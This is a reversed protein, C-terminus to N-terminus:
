PHGPAHGGRDDGADHGAPDDAGNKGGNIAASEEATLNVLLKNTLDTKMTNEQIKVLPISSFCSLSRSIGSIIQLIM